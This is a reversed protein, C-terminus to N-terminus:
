NLSGSQYPSDLSFAPIDVIFLKGDEQKMTYNGVMFGGPTPLPAGSTYQFRDGPKLIPQEGVVGEGAVEQTRGQADTIRWYRSQLQVTDARNNGITVRYAWVFRSEDPSSQDDLYSPEVQITIGETTKEYASAM